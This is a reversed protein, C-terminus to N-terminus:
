MVIHPNYSNNIIGPKREFIESEYEKTYISAIKNYPDYFPQHMKNKYQLATAVFVVLGLCSACLIGILVYRVPNLQYLFCGINTMGAHFFWYIGMLMGTMNSPSQSCIFQIGYIYTFGHVLGSFFFFFVVYQPEDVESGLFSRIIVLIITLINVIYAFGLGKLPSLLFYELKPVCPIIILELVPIVFIVVNTLVNWMIVDTTNTAFMSANYVTFYYSLYFGFTSLIVGLIRWFRKVDEVDKDAFPGGYKTKALDIRSPSVDEWYTLASRKHVKSNTCAYRIVNIVCTYPNTCRVGMKEFKPYHVIHCCLAITSVAAEIGYFVLSTLVSVLGISSVSAVFVAMVFWHIFTRIVASSQDALQCLGYAPLVTFLGTGGISLPIFAIISVTYKFAVPLNCEGYMYQISYNMCQVVSGFWCLWLSVYVSRDYGIVTDALWGALPYLCFLMVNAITFQVYDPVITPEVQPQTETSFCYHHDVQKLVYYAVDFAINFCLNGVFAYLVILWISLPLSLSRYKLEKTFNSMIKAWGCLWGGVRM